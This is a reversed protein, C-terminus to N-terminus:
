KSAPAAPAPDSSPLKVGDDVGTTFSHEASTSTVVNFKNLDMKPYGAAHLWFGQVVYALHTQYERKQDLLRKQNESFDTRGADIATQINRYLAPDVSGPYNEHIWQVTAKSGDEGYRASMSTQIVKQLDGRAMGPVQAMEGIKTTYTGLIQKNNEWTANIQQESQAGYAVAGTYSSFLMVFLVAVVAAAVCLGIILGNPGSRTATTDSL